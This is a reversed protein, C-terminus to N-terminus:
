AESLKQKIKEFTEADIEGQAFRKRVIEMAEDSKSSIQCSSKSHMILVICVVIMPVIIMWPMMFGHWGMWEYGHM